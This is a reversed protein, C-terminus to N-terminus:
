RSLDILPRNGRCQFCQSEIDSPWFIFENDFRENADRLLIDIDFDVNIVFAFNDKISISFSNGDLNGDTRVLLSTV